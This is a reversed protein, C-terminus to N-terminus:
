GNGPTNPPTERATNLMEQDEATKSIVAENMDEITVQPPGKRELMGFVEAIETKQKRPPLRM